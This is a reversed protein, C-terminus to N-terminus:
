YMMDKDDEESEEDCQEMEIMRQEMEIRAEIGAFREKELREFLNEVEDSYNIRYRRVRPHEIALAARFIAALREYILIIQPARGPILSVYPEASFSSLGPSAPRWSPLQLAAFPPRCVQLVASTPFMYVLTVMPNNILQFSTMM